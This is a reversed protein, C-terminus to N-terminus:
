SCAARVQLVAAGIEGKEARCRKAKEELPTFAGRSSSEHPVLEVTDGRSTASVVSSGKAFARISKFGLQQLYSLYEVGSAPLDVEVEREPIDRLVNLIVEGLDEATVETPLKTAPLKAILGYATNDYGFIYIAEPRFNVECTKM